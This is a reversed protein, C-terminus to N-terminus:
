KEGEKEDLERFMKRATKLRRIVTRTSIGLEDSIQRVSYLYAHWLRLPTRYKLEMPKSTMEIKLVAIEKQQYLEKIEDLLLEARIIKQEYSAGFGPSTKVRVQSYDFGGTADAMQRLEKYQEMKEDIQYKLKRPLYLDVM